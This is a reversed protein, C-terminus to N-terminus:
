PSAIGWLVRALKCIPLRRGRTLYTMNSMRIRVTGEEERIWVLGVSHTEAESRYPRGVQESCTDQTDAMQHVLCLCCVLCVHNDDTNKGCGPCRAGTAEPEKDILLIIFMSLRNSSNQAGETSQRKPSRCFFSCFGAEAM